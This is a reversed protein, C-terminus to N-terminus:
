IAKATATRNGDHIEKPQLERPLRNRRPRSTSHDLHQIEGTGPKGTFLNLGDSDTGAPKESEDDEVGHWDQWDKLRLVVVADDDRAHPAKWVVVGTAGAREGAMTIGRLWDKLYSPLGRRLKCQYVFAPAVVDAGDREGTVPVRKGGVRAAVRREFAKWSKDM